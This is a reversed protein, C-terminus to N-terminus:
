SFCDLGKLLTTYQALFISNECSNCSRFLCITLHVCKIKSINTYLGCVHINVYIRYIYICVYVYICDLNNETHTIM